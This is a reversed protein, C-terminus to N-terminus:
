SKVPNLTVTSYACDDNLVASVNLLHDFDWCRAGSHSSNEFPHKLVSIISNNKHKHTDKKNWTFQAIVCKTRCAPSARCRIRMVRWWWGDPLLVLAPHQICVDVLGRCHHGDAYQLNKTNRKLWFSGSLRCGSLLRMLVYIYKWFRMTAAASQSHWALPTFHRTETNRGEMELSTRVYLCIAAMGRLLRGRGRKGNETINNEKFGRLHLKGWWISM